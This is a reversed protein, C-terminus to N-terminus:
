IELVVKIAEDPQNRLVAFGQEVEQLPFRHTILRDIHPNQGIIRIAERYDERTYMLTGIINLEKDQVLGMNVMAHEEFVGLIVVNGGKITLEIGQNVTPAVGVCEFTSDVREVNEKIWAELNTKGANIVHDAGLDQALKLRNDNFDSVVITGAGYTKLTAVVMLGITGAGLVLVTQGAIHPVRRVAHVGVALPEVLVGQDWSFSEPLEFVMDKPVIVYEAFAGPAQCGIVRLSACINFRGIRCNYCTGCVLSPLVTVRKGVLETSGDGCEVVTGVFEHGPVIPCSIFPHKGYYAHVDSGCIGAQVVKILAENEKPEPTPADELVFNEPTKLNAQLM